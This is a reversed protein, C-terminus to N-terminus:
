SRPLRKRFSDANSGVDIKQTITQLEALAGNSTIFALSSARFSRGGLYSWVGHGPGRAAPYFHPNSTTETMTGGSDFTLLSLFPAGLAAGTQCNTQTVEVTWTGKLLDVPANAAAIQPCASAFASGLVIASLAKKTHVSMNSDENLLLPRLSSTAASAQSM